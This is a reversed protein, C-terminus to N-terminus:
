REGGGGWAAQDVLWRVEGATVRAPPLDEGSRIRSLAQHKAAGAVTFVVLRAAAIAPLTLSLRRHSNKGNPDATAVVLATGPVELTDAGPFLSATHGDPGMGLHVLDIGPRRVLGAVVRGYAQAGDRPDRTTPMPTFSGVAGVPQILAERVMRQNADPDDPPVLREDGMYLDVESWDVAGAPLAAVREYCARATPGGSLFVVFREGARAAFARAFLGAFASPVDDVPPGTLGPPGAPAAPGTRGAPGSAATEPRSM